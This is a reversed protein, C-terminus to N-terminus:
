TDLKAIKWKISDTVEIKEIFGFRRDKDEIGAITRILKTRAVMEV